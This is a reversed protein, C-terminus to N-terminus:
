LRRLRDVAEVLAAPDALDKRPLGQNATTWRAGQDVTGFVANPFRSRSALYIATVVSRIITMKFGTDEFVIAACGIKSEYTTLLSAIEKRVEAPTNIDCPKEVTTLFVIKKHQEDSVADFASKVWGLPPLVVHQRWLLLVYEGFIGVAADPSHGLVELSRSLDPKTRLVAENRM